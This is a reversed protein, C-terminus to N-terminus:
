AFHDGIFSLGAGVAATVLGAGGMAEPVGTEGLVPILSGIGGATAVSIGVQQFKQGAQQWPNQTQDQAKGGGIRPLEGLNVMEFGFNRANSNSM